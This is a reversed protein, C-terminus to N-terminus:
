ATLGLALIFGLEGELLPEALGLLERRDALERGLNACSTPVGSLTIAPRARDIWRLDFSGSATSFFAPIM